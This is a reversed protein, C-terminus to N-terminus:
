RRTAKRSKPTTAANAAMVDEACRKLADVLWSIAEDDERRRHWVTVLELDPLPIPSECAKLPMTALAQRAMSRPLLTLCSGTAAILPLSCFSSTLVREFQRIGAEHLYFQELSAHVDFDLFFGAHARALYRERTLPRRMDPDDKHGVVVFTETMLPRVVIEDTAARQDNLGAYLMRKPMIIMDVRGVRLDEGSQRRATLMQVSMSPGEAQLIRSLPPAFISMVYDATAIRYRQESELPEFRQPSLARQVAVMAEEIPAVLRLGVETLRMSRGDRVLLEDGFHDRLLRLSNSIASQTLNLTEAARTLNKHRLVERLVPLLNLNVSRIRAEPSTM